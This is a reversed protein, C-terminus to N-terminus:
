KLYGMEIAFELVAERMEKKTKEIFEGSWKFQSVLEHVKNLILADMEPTKLYSSKVLLAGTNLDTTLHLVRICQHWLDVEIFSKQCNTKKGHYMELEKPYVDIELKTSINSANYSLEIKQFNGNWVSAKPTQALLRSVRLMNPTSIKNM